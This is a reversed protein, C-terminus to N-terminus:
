LRSPRWPVPISSSHRPSRRRRAKRAQRRRDAQLLEGGGRPALGRDADDLLPGLDAGMDEGARDELGDGEILQDRVPLLLPRGEIRRRDVVIEQQQGLLVRQAQRGRGLHVVLAIVDDAQAIEAAPQRLLGLPQPHLDIRAKGGGLHEIVLGSPHLTDRGAIHADALVALGRAIECGADLEMAPQGQEGLTAAARQGLGQDMAEIQPLADIGLGIADPDLLQPLDIRGLM